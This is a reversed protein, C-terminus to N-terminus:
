YNNWYYIVYKLLYCDAECLACVNTKAPVDTNTIVNLISLLSFISDGQHSRKIIYRFCIDSLTYRYIYLGSM